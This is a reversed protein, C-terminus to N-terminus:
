ARASDRLPWSRPEQFCQRSGCCGIEPGHLGHGRREGAEGNTTNLIPAVALAHPMGLNHGAEHQMVELNFSGGNVWTIRDGVQGLGAWFCAVAPYSYWLFRFESTSYGMKVLNAALLADYAAGASSDFCRRTRPPPLPLPESHPHPRDLSPLAGM